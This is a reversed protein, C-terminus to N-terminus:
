TWSVIRDCTEILDVCEGHDILRVTDPIDRSRGESDKNLVNISEAFGLAEIDRLDSVYERGEGIIFFVIKSGRGAMKEALSLVTKTQLKGGIIFLFRMM